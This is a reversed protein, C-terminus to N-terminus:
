VDVNVKKISIKNGKEKGKINTKIEKLSPNMGVCFVNNECENKKVGNKQGLM